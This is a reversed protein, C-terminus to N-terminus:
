IQVPNGEYNCLIGKANTYSERQIHIPNGEYKYLIGKVCNYLIAKMNM